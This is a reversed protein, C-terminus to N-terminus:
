YPFDDPESNDVPENVPSVPEHADHASEVGESREHADHADHAPTPVGTDTFNTSTTTTEFLTVRRAHRAHVCSNERLAALRPHVTFSPSEKGRRGAVLPGDFQPYTWGLEALLNLPAVADDARPFLKRNESYVDRLTFTDGDRRSAWELIVKAGFTVEDSGWLDHVIKAHAEWYDGVEIALAMTDDDIETGPREHALHLLGAVRITTSQLKTVWESMWRLEGDPGLRDEHSQRWKKFRTLAGKSLTLRTSNDARDIIRRILRQYRHAVDQDWTSDRLMDREGVYDAPVSYMFRATLGRGRLEPFDALARIVGPQVTLGISIVPNTLVTAERGIRNVKIKDGSWGKLYPDLKSKDGYLGTMMDFLGGEPSIIAIHGGNDAIMPPIKEPTVDDATIQPISITPLARLEDGVSLASATEGKDIFKAQQKTLIKRTTEIRDHEPATQEILETEWDEIPKLMQKYAPSKGASPPMATVLYTNLAETWAGQVTVAVNRHTAISLATLGLMAPLDVPIQLEDAIQDAQDAIADPFVHLPFTPTDGGDGLPIPDPLVLQDPENGPRELPVFDDITHGFAFHDYADKGEAAQVIRTPINYILLHGAVQEAHDIGPKDRDAVIIIQRAGQLPKAIKATFGGAGGSNCTAEVGHQVLADVDKEGEAIYITDGNDIAARIEPLRYPLREVGDLKKGWEGTPLYAHQRFQKGPLKVVRYAPKGDAHKYIWQSIPQETQNDGFDTWTLDLAHLIDDPRCGAHCYLVADRHTGYTASFSPQSDDHAPCQGTIRNTRRDVKKGLTHLRQEILDLADVTM